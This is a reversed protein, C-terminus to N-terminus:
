KHKIKLTLKQLALREQKSLYQQAIKNEPNRNFCYLAFVFLWELPKMLLFVIDCVIKYNFIFYYKHVLDGIKDYHRRVTKHIFPVKEQLLEEFANAVLLQRNCIIIKNHRTGFREPKVIFKHGRAAVTCLYHGDPCVVGDCMYDLQSFGHKYTDTFARIVSDPKQGFLLLIAILIITVPLCLILLLPLKKFYESSLIQMAIGPLGDYNRENSDISKMCLKHNDALMILGALIIPINGVIAFLLTGSDNKTQLQFFIFVNLVIGLLILINVIVEIVPPAIKRRYSSYLFATVCLVIIVYITLRHEPSFFASDACCDNVLGIDSFQLFLFPLVVVVILEVIWKVIRNLFHKGDVIYGAFDLLILFAPLAFLLAM